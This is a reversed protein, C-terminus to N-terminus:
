RTEHNLWALFMAKGAGFWSFTGRLLWRNRGTREAMAGRQVTEPGDLYATIHSWGRQAFTLSRSNKPNRTYPGNLAQVVPAQPRPM